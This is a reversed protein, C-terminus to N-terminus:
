GDWVSQAAQPWECGRRGSGRKRAGHVRSYWRGRGGVVECGRWSMTVVGGPMWMRVKHRMRRCSGAADRRRRFVSSGARGGGGRGGWAATFMHGKAWVQGSGKPVRDVPDGHAEGGVARFVAWARLHLGGSELVATRRQASRQAMTPHKKKGGGVRWRAVVIRPTCRCVACQMRRGAVSALAHTAKHRCPPAVCAMAMALVAATGVCMSASDRVVADADTDADAHRTEQTRAARRASEEADRSSPPALTRFPLFPFVRSFSQVCSADLFLCVHKKKALGCVHVCTCVCQCM